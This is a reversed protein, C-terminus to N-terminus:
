FASRGHTYVCLCIFICMVVTSVHHCSLMDLECVSKFVLMPIVISESEHFIMKYTYPYMFLQFHIIYVCITFM